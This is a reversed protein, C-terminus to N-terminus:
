RRSAVARPAETPAGLRVAEADTLPRVADGVSIVGGVVVAANIGGRHLMPGLLPVGVLRELHRCPRCRKVGLLVAEGVGFWRGVLDPLALGTTVLNRRTDGPTLAAGTERAVAAVDAEEILTLQKEEAPYRAWTGGGTAYRDGELGRGALLRASTASGMPLRAEATLWVGELRGVRGDSM